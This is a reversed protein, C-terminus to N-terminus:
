GVWKVGAQHHANGSACSSKVEESVSLAFRPGPRRASGSGKAMSSASNTLVAQFRWGPRVQSFRRCVAQLSPTRARYCGWLLRSQVVRWGRRTAGLGPLSVSYSYVRHRSSPANRGNWNALRTGLLGSISEFRRTPNRNIERWFKCCRWGMGGSWSTKRDGMLQQSYPLFGVNSAITLPASEPGPTPLVGFNKSTNSVM